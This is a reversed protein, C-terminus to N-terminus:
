GFFNMQAHRLEQSSNNISKEYRLYRNCAIIAITKGTHMECGQIVIQIINSTNDYAFILKNRKFSYISSVLFNTVM